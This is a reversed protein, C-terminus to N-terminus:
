ALGVLAALEAIPPNGHFVGDIEITPVARKGNNKSMVMDAAERSDDINIEEFPVQNAELFRKARLCDSCTTTTFVRIKM